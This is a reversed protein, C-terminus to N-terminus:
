ASGETHQGVFLPGMRWGIAERHPNAFGAVTKGSEVGRLAEEAFRPVRHISGGQSRAVIGTPDGRLDYVSGGYRACGHWSRSPVPVNNEWDNTLIQRVQNKCTAEDESQAAFRKRFRNIRDLPTSDLLYDRYAKWTSHDAPLVGPSYIGKEKSYLAAAHVGGLRRVLREYTDPEFEQLDALCKFAQEHILNSVRITRLNVGYKAVMRDYYANYHLENDAIYKWVDGVTWDYIPYVSVCRRGKDGDVL